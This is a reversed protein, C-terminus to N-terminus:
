LPYELTLQTLYEMAEQRFTDNTLIYPDPEDLLTLLTPNSPSYKPWNTLNQGNPNFHNAFNVLYDMM